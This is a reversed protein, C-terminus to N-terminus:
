LRLEGTWWEDNRWRWVDCLFVTCVFLADHGVRNMQILPLRSFQDAFPKKRKQGETVPYSLLVACVFLCVFTCATLCCLRKLARGQYATWAMSFCVGVIKASIIICLLLHPLRDKLMSSLETPLKRDLLHLRIEFTLSSTPGHM